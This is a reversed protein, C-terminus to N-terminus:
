YEAAADVWDEIRSASIDTEAELEDPDAAALDAVTEVGAAALRDGYAPGIGNLETVPDSSGEAAPETSEAPSEDAAEAASAGGADAVPEDTAGPATSGDDVSPEAEQIASETPPEATEEGAVGADDVPETESSATETGKVADESESSPEREVTVDVDRPGTTGPDPSRAGDLGLASKLKQILGM